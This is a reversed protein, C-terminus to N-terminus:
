QSKSVMKTLPRCIQKKIQDIRRPSERFIGLGDDRYLGVSTRITEPLQCLLYSGVLECTEAGDFSGMTVDFSDHSNKKSWPTGNNFLLWKKAHFIIEKDAETIETYNSAFKLAENLLNQSISAERTSSIGTSLQSHRFYLCMCQGWRLCM